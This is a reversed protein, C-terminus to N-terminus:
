PGSGGKGWKSAVPLEGSSDRDDYAASAAVLSLTQAAVFLSLFSSSYWSPM